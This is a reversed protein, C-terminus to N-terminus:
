LARRPVGARLLLRELEAPRRATSYRWRVLNEVEPLALLADTRNKEALLVQELSRGGRMEADLYKQQGDFEGIRGVSRWWFDAFYTRGDVGTFQKQLEPREFGLLHMQGKSISEGATKSGSSAIELAARVVNKGRTRPRRRIENELADRSGLGTALFFDFALLAALFGESSGMDVATRAATTCAIGDVFAIDVEVSVGHRVVGATTKGTSRKPDIVHLKSPWADLVPIGWLAGASAHSVVVDPSIRPLAARILAIHQSRSSLGRWEGEALYVGRRVRVFDGRAVGRRLRNEAGGAAAFQAPTVFRSDM